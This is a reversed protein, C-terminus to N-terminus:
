TDELDSNDEDEEEEEETLDEMNPPAMSYRINTSDDESDDSENDSFEGDAGPSIGVTSFRVNDAGDDDSEEGDDGNGDGSEAFHVSGRISAHGADNKDNDVNSGMDEEDESEKENEMSVNEGGDIGSMEEINGIDDGANGAVQGKEVAASLKESDENVSDDDGNDEEEEEEGEGESGSSDELVEEEHAGDEIALQNAARASELAAEYEAAIAAEEAAAADEAAQQAAEIEEQRRAELEALSFVRHAVRCSPPVAQASLKVDKPQVYIRGWALEVVYRPKIAESEPGSSGGCGSGSAASLAHDSSSDESSSSSSDERTSLVGSSNSKTPRPAEARARVTGPGFATFVQRGLTAISSASLFARAGPSPAPPSPVAPAGLEENSHSSSGRKHRASKKRGGSYALTVPRDLQVVVIQDKFRVAEVVGAGFVTGVVHGVSVDGSATTASGSLESGEGGSASSSSALLLDDITCKHKREWASTASSLETTFRVLNALVAASSGGVGGAGGAGFYECFRRCLQQMESTEAELQNLQPTAASLFEGLSAQFNAREEPFPGDSIVAEEEEEGNGQSNGGGNGGGGGNRKKGRAAIQALLDGRGGGGGGGPGGAPGARTSKGGGNGSSSSNSSDGGIGGGSSGNSGNNSEETKKKTTKKAGRNAIEALFGARPNEAVSSSSSSSSLAAPPVPAPAEVLGSAPAAAAAVTSETSLPTPPLVATKTSTTPTVASIDQGLAAAHLACCWEEATPVAFFDVAFFYTRAPKNSGTAGSTSPASMLSFIGSRRPMPAAGAAAVSADGSGDASSAGGASTAATADLDETVEFRGGPTVQPNSAPGVVFSGKEVMKPAADLYVLRKQSTLVLVRKLYAHAKKSGRKNVAGCMVITEHPLLWEATAKHQKVLRTLASAGDRAAAAGAEELPTPAKLLAGNSEGLATGGGAASNLATTSPKAEEAPKFRGTLTLKELWKEALPVLLGEPRLPPPPRPQAPDLDLLNPDLGEATMKMAVAAKPLHIKLMKFYKALEPDDQMAVAAETSALAVQAGAGEDEEDDDSLDGPAVFDQQGPGECISVAMRLGGDEDDDDSFNGESDNNKSNNKADSAANAKAHAQHQAYLPRWETLLRNLGRIPDESPEFFPALLTPATPAAAVVSATTTPTEATASSDTGEAAVAAVSRVSDHGKLPPLSPASVAMAAAAAHINAADKLIEKTTLVRVCAAEEESTTKDLSKEAAALMAVGEPGAAQSLAVARM